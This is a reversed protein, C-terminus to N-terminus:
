NQQQSAAYLAFLEDLLVELEDDEMTELGAINDIDDIIADVFGQRDQISPPANDVIDQKQEPTLTGFGEDFMETFVEVKGDMYNELVSGITNGIMKYTTNDVKVYVTAVTEDLKRFPQGPHLDEFAVSTLSSAAAEVTEAINYGPKVVNIEALLPTKPQYISEQLVNQLPYGSFTVTYAKTDENLTAPINRNTGKIFFPKGHEVVTQLDKTKTVNFGLTQLKDIDNIFM